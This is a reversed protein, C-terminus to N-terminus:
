GSTRATVRLSKTATSRAAHIPRWSRSADPRHSRVILSVVSSATMTVTANHIPTAMPAARKSRERMQGNRVGARTRRGSRTTTGYADVRSTGGTAESLGGM